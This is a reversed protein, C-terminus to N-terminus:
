TFGLSFPFNSSYPAHTLSLIFQYAEFFVAGVRYMLVDVGNQIASVAMIDINHELTEPPSPGPLSLHFKRLQESLGDQKIASVRGKQSIYIYRRKTITNALYCFINNPM